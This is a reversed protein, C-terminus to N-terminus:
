VCEVPCDSVWAALFANELVSLDLARGLVDLDITVRGNHSTMCLHFHHNIALRLQEVAAVGIHPHLARFAPLHYHPLGRGDGSLPSRIFRRVNM